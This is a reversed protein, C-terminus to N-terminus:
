VEVAPEETVQEKKLTEYFAAHAMVMYPEIWLLGLGCTIIGLLIWGLFTLDLVFLKMKHGEMMRMSKEIAADYKLQPDDKLIGAKDLLVNAEVASISEKGTKQLYADLFTIIKNM